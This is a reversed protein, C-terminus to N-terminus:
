RAIFGHERGGADIFGGVILGANNIVQTGGGNASGPHDITELVGDRLLFGHFRGSADAYIGTIDTRENEDRLGTQNGPVDLTAFGASETWTFGHVFLSADRYDGVVEGHNTVMWADSSALVPNDFVRFKGDHGWLWGLEKGTVDFCRGVLDGLDNIGHIVTQLTTIVCPSPPDVQVYHGQATRLYGHNLGGADTWRGVIDGRANISAANTFIARPYDLRTYTGDRARLFGHSINQADRYLGVIQGSANVGFPRTLLAGPVDFPEYNFDQTLAAPNFAVV